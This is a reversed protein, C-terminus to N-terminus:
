LKTIVSEDEVEDPYCCSASWRERALSANRPMSAEGASLLLFRERAL